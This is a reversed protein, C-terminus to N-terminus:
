ITANLTQGAEIIVSKAFTITVRAGQRVLKCELEIGNLQASAANANFGPAELSLSKLPLKGSKVELSSEIKGGAIKQRFTGWGEAATFPARFDQPTLRPAFGIHQKPGDYEYGCAAIFTGYSSMARAYHDSCEIENYPNRLKASYRDHIVRTVALGETVMKEWLMHSAVQHEFGSMCENFYMASWAAPGTFVIDPAFPNSLMVTGGDGPLAYWRGETKVARFPAVDPTFNYNWISQLAKKAQLQPTVEGIGVQWAWSQGLVQDIHCGDYAGVETSRAPDGIHVYYGYDEKWTLENLKKAAVQLISYCETAFATDGMQLAMVEGAKLAAHYMNCLWPVIGYWDADLTNHLPGRIIGDGDADTEIIKQLARKVNPWVRQLFADDPSMQSERLAGLIRGAQGDVAYVDGNEARYAIVGDPKLALGFDVFERHDREVKPFLRAMAQAYHWVHTCTGPCCGIGEHAWFRDGTLYYCTRTALISTNAFTRNLFWYPLTSDYWTDRWLRTQSSLTEFNEAIYRAVAPADAFRETYAHERGGLIEKPAHPFHWAILFSIVKTESAALTLKRGLRGISKKEFTSEQDAERVEAPAGLLAFAMSGADPLRAFDAESIPPKDTFTISGVGINGWDGGRGDVIEFQGKQQHFASADLTAQTMANSNAGTVSAVIKGSVLLRVALNELDMGGGIWVRIYKREITFPASLLRGIAADKQPVDVMDNGVHSNIARLTDGAIDGMYAPFASKDIPGPGFADGEVTWGADQFTAASWEEFRIDPQTNAGPAEAVADFFVLTSGNADTTKSRRTGTLHKTTSLVANELHGTFAIESSENGSNTVEFRFITAPLSSDKVNLPIFPSFAELKITIPLSPDAYRIVGVPYEGTFSVDQFGSGAVADLTKRVEGAATKVTIEFGQDVRRYKDAALPEVYSSGWVPNINKGKFDAGAPEIGLANSNFIDWLWLRGDGGLYMTGCFLGGVPMGIHSLHPARYTEQKGRETLSKVWAPNLKKDLPIMKAFDSKVFPGAAVAEGSSTLLAISTM